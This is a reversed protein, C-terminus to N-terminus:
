KSCRRAYTCASCYGNLPLATVAEGYISCFLCMTMAVLVICIPAWVGESAVTLGTVYFASSTM